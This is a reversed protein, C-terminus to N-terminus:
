CLNLSHRLGFKQSQLCTGYREKLLDNYQEAEYGQKVAERANEVINNGTVANLGGAITGGAAGIGVGGFFGAFLAQARDLNAQAQKYQEDIGFRQQINIEEQLGETIGEVVGTRGAGEGIAGLIRKHVPGTGKQKLIGSLGKFVLAEAGVGIAAFPVGIASARFASVPDIMDQDAYTGFSIGAGQPYEQAVAGAVAGVKAASGLRMQKHAQYAGNLLDEEEPKLAHGKM